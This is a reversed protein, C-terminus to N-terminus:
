KNKLVKEPRGGEERRRLSQHILCRIKQQLGMPGQTEPPNKPPPKNLEPIEITRDEQESVIEM